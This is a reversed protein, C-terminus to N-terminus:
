PTTPKYLIKTNEGSDSFVGDFHAPSNSRRRRRPREEEDDSESGDEDRDSSSKRKKGRVDLSDSQEDGSDSADGDSANDQEDLEPMNQLACFAEKEAVLEAEIDGDDFVVIGGRGPRYASTLQGQEVGVGKKNKQQELDAPDRVANISGFVNQLNWPRRADVVWVEVGHEANEADGAEPDEGGDLGLVEALDVLGGVGLCVVVGGDGGNQRSLPQVLEKGAKALEGYGSVPQIKHPIYDRRLLATLIRCACLTDPDLSVLLLVPPSLPHTTRLLHTYLHSLLARPLYM